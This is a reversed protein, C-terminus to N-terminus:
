IDSSQGVVHPPGNEDIDVCRWIIPKNNYRGLVIYDGLKIEADPVEAKAGMPPFLSIFLVVSVFFAILRKLM